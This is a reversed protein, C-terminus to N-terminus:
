ITDRRFNKFQEENQPEFSFFYDNMDKWRLGTKSIYNLIHKQRQKFKHIASSNMYFNNLPQYAGYDANPINFEKVYPEYPSYFSQRGHFALTLKIDNAKARIALDDIRYLVTDNWIGVGSSEIDDYFTCHNEEWPKYYGTIFIRLVSM